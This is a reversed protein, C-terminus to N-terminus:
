IKYIELPGEDQSKAQAIIGFILRGEERLKRLKEKLIIMNKFDINALDDLLVIMKRNDKPELLSILYNLQNEGAGLDLFNRVIGDKSTFTNEILNIEIVEIDEGMHRIKPMVKALYSFLSSFYIKEEDPLSTMDIKKDRYDNITNIYDKFYKGFLKQLSETAKFFKELEKVHKEYPVEPIAKLKEIELKMKNRKTNEDELILENDSIDRKFQIIAEEIGAESYGKYEELGEGGIICNKDKNVKDQVIFKSYKLFSDNHGNFLKVLRNLEEQRSEILYSNDKKTLIEKDTNEVKQILKELEDLDFNMPGLKSRCNEMTGINAKIKKYRDLEHNAWQLGDTFSLTTGLIYMNLERYNECLEKLAECARLEQIAHKNDKKMEDLASIFHVILGRFEKDVKFDVKMKEFDIKEWKDLNYSDDPFLTRLQFGISNYNSSLIGIKKKVENRANSLKKDNSKLNGGLSEIEQRLKEIDRELNEKQSKHYDKYYFYTACQLLKLKNKYHEIKKSLSMIYEEKMRLEEAKDNIRNLDKNDINRMIQNIYAKYGMIRRLHNNQIDGFENKLDQARKIPDIPTDYILVVEQHFENTSLEEKTSGDNLVKTIEIKPNIPDSKEFIYRTGDSSELEISFTIEHYKTDMLHEMKEKISHHINKNNIGDAGIGIINVMTTKGITNPGIMNFVDPWEGDPYEETVIPGFLSKDNRRFLSYKLKM